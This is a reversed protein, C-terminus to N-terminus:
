PVTFENSIHKERSGTPDESRFEYDFGRRRAVIEGRRSLTDLTLFIDGWRLDPLRALIEDITLPESHAQLVELVITEFRSRHESMLAEERRM